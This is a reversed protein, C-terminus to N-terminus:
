KGSQKEQQLEKIAEKVIHKKWMYDISYSAIALVFFLLISSLLFGLDKYKYYWNM